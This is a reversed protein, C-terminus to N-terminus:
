MKGVIVEMCWLYLKEFGCANSGSLEFQMLYHTTSSRRYIFDKPYKALIGVLVLALLEEYKIAYGRIVKVIM